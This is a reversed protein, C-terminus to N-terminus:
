SVVKMKLLCSGNYGKAGETGMMLGYFNIEYDDIVVTFTQDGFQFTTLEKSDCLSNIHDLESFTEYELPTGVLSELMPALLITAYIHTTVSSPKIQASLMWSHVTPAENTEIDDRYLIHRLEFFRAVPEGISLPWSHPDHIGLSVFPGGETAILCEHEGHEGSHQADIKVGIKQETINYSIEGTDLHGSIVLNDPDEAVIGVQDLVFVRLDNFTVLSRVDNSFLEVMLDSAYAPLLLDTNVFTKLSLRGLGTAAPSSAFQSYGFWVFENQGEFCRVTGPTDIRAGIRLDGSDQVLALHLGKNTGIFLYRGLYGYITSVIEGEELRGAVVPADLATGDPNLGFRYILSKDGSFGAAYIATEGEAFGVWSFDTNPHTFLAAPLAGGAGTTLASIDYVMNAQAALFRNKAFGLVSVTGTIHAAGGVAAAGRTTKWIGTAGCCIIVNFGDTTIDTPQTGPTGTITTFTPSGPTIDGTRRLTTGDTYYLFSGAVVMKQNTAASLIKFDITQHLSLNWEEWVNMGQSTRFRFPNSDKRDFFPQGAGYHWSEGTARWFGEPNISQQGPTESSDQQPKIVPISRRALPIDAKWDIMYPHGGVAVDVLGSAAETATGAGLYYPQAHPLNHRFGM